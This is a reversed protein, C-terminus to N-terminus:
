LEELMRLVQNIKAQPVYRRAMNAARYIPMQHAMQLMPHRFVGPFQQQVLKRVKPDSLLEGITIQGNRLDM